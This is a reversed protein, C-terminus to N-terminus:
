WSLLGTVFSVVRLQGLKDWSAALRKNFPKSVSCSRHVSSGAVSQSPDILHQPWIQSPYRELHQAFLLSAAVKADRRSFSTPSTAWLKASGKEQSKAPAEKSIVIQLESVFSTPKQHEILVNKACVSDCNSNWAHRRQEKNLRTIISFFAKARPTKSAQPQEVGLDCTKQSWAKAPPKTVHVM